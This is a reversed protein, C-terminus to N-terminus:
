CNYNAAFTYINFSTMNYGNFVEGINETCNLKTIDTIENVLDDIPM